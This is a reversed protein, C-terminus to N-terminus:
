LVGRDNNDEKRIHEKSLRGENSTEGSSFPVEARNPSAVRWQIVAKWLVRGILCAAAIGAEM